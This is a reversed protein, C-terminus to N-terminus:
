DTSWLRGMPNRRPNDAMEQNQRSEYPMETLMQMEVMIVNIGECWVEWPWM